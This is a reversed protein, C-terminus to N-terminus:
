KDKGGEFYVMVQVTKFERVVSYNRLIYENVKKLSDVGLGGIGTSKGYLIVVNNKKAELQDIIENQRSDSLYALPVDSKTPNIKGTLFYMEPKWPFAFLYSNNFETNLYEFLRNEDSLDFDGSVRIDSRNSSYGTTTGTFVGYSQWRVLISGIHQSLQQKGFVFLCTLIAVTGM